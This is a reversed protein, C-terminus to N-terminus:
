AYSDTGRSGSVFSQYEVTSADADGEITTENRETVDIYVRRDLNGLFRGGRSGMSSEQREFEKLAETSDRINGGLLGFKQALGSVATTIGMLLIGVGTVTLLTRIAATIANIGASLLYSSAAAAKASLSYSGTMTMLAGQANTSQLISGTLQLLSSRYLQIMKTTLFVASATLLLGGVLNGLMRNGNGLIGFLSLLQGILAFMPAGVTMVATFVDFLGASFQQVAPLIDVLLSTFQVLSPLVDALAGAFGRILDLDRLGDAVMSFVGSSTEALLLLETITNAVFPVAFRGFARADDELAPLVRGAEALRDFTDYLGELGREFQPRLREALPSFAEFFEDPLEDLVATFDELSPMGGARAAAAGLLGLGAIGGLAGAAGVAAAALGGLAGILAPLSGVFLTLVPIAAALIDYFQTMGVRLNLFADTLQGRQFQRTDLFEEVVDSFSGFGAADAIESGDMDILDRPGGVSMDDLAENLADFDFASVFARGSFIESLQDEPLQFPPAEGTMAGRVSVSGQRFARDFSLGLASEFSAIDDPSISRGSGDMGGDRALRDLLGMLGVAGAGLAANSGLGSTPSGFSDVTESFDTVSQRFIDSPSESPTHSVDSFTDGLETTAIRRQLSRLQRDNVVVRVHIPDLADAQEGVTELLGSLRTLDDTFEDNVTTFLDLHEAQYM